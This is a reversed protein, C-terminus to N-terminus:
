KFRTPGVASVSIRQDAFATEFVEFSDADLDTELIDTIVIERTPATADSHNEFRVTYALTGVVPM